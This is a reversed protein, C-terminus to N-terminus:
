HQISTVDTTLQPVLWGPPSALWESRICHIRAKRAIADASKNCVRSVYVCSWDSHISFMYKCHQVLPKSLWPPHFGPVTIAQYLAKNDTEFIVKQYHHHNCWKVAEWLAQAEAQLPSQAYTTLSKAALFTGDDNRLLMALGACDTAKTFSADINLKKFGPPPPQWSSDTDLSIRSYSESTSTSSQMLHYQQEYHKILRIITNPNPYKNQYQLQCRAKWLVWLTYAILHLKHPHLKFNISASSDNWNLIWSRISQHQQLCTLVEPCIATWMA